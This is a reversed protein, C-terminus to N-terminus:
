IAEYFKTMVLEPLPKDAAWRWSMVQVLASKNDVPGSLVFCFSM